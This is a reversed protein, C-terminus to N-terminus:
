TEQKQEQEQKGEGAEGAKMDTSMDHRKRSMRLAEEVTRESSDKFGYLRRGFGVAEEVSQEAQADREKTRELAFAALESPTLGSKSERVEEVEDEDEDAGAGAGGRPLSTLTKMVQKNGYRAAVHLPTSGDANKLNPDVGRDLLVHICADSGAQAALHIARSGNVLQANIDAGMEDLLALVLPYHGVIAAELLATWGDASAANVDAGAEILTRMTAIDGNRGALRVPFTQDLDGPESSNFRRALRNNPPFSKNPDIGGHELLVRVTTTHLGNIAAEFPSTGHHVGLPDAGALLLMKAAAAHGGLAAVHLPGNSTYRFNSSAKGRLNVNSGHQLLLGIMDTNGRYAAAELATGEEGGEINVAAGKELLYAVIAANNSAAAAQLPTGHRGRATNVQGGRNLILKVLELDGSYAANLLVTGFLAANGKRAGPHNVEAPPDHDLLMTCIDIYGYYAASHLAPSWYSGTIDTQARKDLLFRVVEEHGNASAAQLATGCHEDHRDINAGHSLLQAVVAVSGGAAAKTLPYYYKEGDAPVGQDLFKNVHDLMQGEAASSMLAASPKAGHEILLNLVKSHGGAAASKADIVFLGDNNGVIAGHELLLRCIGEYGALSAATLPSGRKGAIHNPDAGADLLVKVAEEHGNISAQLLATGSEFDRADCRAGNQILLRIIESHGRDAAALIPFSMMGGRLNPNAGAVLLKEVVKVRGMYAAAQLPFGFIGGQQDPEEGELLLADVIFALGAHSAYYIAPAVEPVTDSRRGWKEVRRWPRDINYVQCWNILHQPRKRNFLSLVLNRLSAQDKSLRFHDIWYTSAYEVLHYESKLKTVGAIQSPISLLYVLCTKAAFTHADDETFAFTTRNGSILFDRVSKHALQVYTPTSDGIKCTTRILLDPCFIFIGQKDTMRNSPNFTNDSDWDIALIEALEELCMPRLAAVMLKLIQLTDDAHHDDIGRLVKEYSEELTRPLSRLAKRLAIPKWCDRLAM